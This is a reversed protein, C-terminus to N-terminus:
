FKRKKTQKIKYIPYLKDLWKFRVEKSLLGNVWHLKTKPIELYCYLQEISKYLEHANVLVLFSLFFFFSFVICLLYCFQININNYDFIRCHILLLVYHYSHLFCKKSKKKTYASLFYTFWYNFYCGTLPWHESVKAM